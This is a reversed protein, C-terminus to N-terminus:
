VIYNEVTKMLTEPGFPKTIYGTTGAMRGRVKDFFGDKGSIMVVPIDKTKENTRLMKCVTYGDMRPMTIDLLILDPVRAEIKELADMGDVACLVEHGSKELKGSILKRVTASDDVVLITKNKPMSSHISEQAEIEALRISLANTQASLVVDNPNLQAARQLYSFGQRFHKLNIQGIGLSKLEEAGFNTFDNEAEMREVAQRVIERNADGHALLMELDSLTLVALCSPCVFALADNDRRCFPCAILNTSEKEGSKNENEDELDASFFLQEPASNETHFQPETATSEESSFSCDDENDIASALGLASDEEGIEYYDASDDADVGNEFADSDNAAFMASDNLDESEAISYDPYLNALDVVNETAAEGAFFENEEADLAALKKQTERELPSVLKSKLFRMYDVSARALDNEPNLNRAQKWCEIKEDFSAALLAKLLWSDANDATHAFIEELTDEAAVFDGAFSEAVARALLLECTEAKAAALASSATENEPNFSLVKKMFANREEDYESAQALGLWAAECGDELAIAQRFCQRAFDPQNIDAARVGREVFNAALLSETEKAWRAARENSPNVRLANNLFGLLEEPYESVSALHLWADESQPEADAVELLLVRAEARNGARAAEIGARIKQSYDDSFVLDDFVNGVAFDTEAASTEFDLRM